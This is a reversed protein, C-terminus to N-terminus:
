EGAAYQGVLGTLVIVPPTPANAIADIRKWSNEVENSDILGIEFANSIIEDKIEDKFGSFKALPYQGFYLTQTVHLHIYMEIPVRMGHGNDTYIEVHDFAALDKHEGPEIPLKGENWRNFAADFAFGLEKGEADYCLCESYFAQPFRFPFPASMRIGFAIMASRHDCVAPVKVRVTWKHIDTDIPSYLDMQVKQALKKAAATFGAPCVLVGRQAGVDNVLGLFEEVGKVDVPHKYDKCDIVIRIEYQGVRQSVLVDIQRMVESNRGPLRVNHEIKADPALQQQIRAVLIELEKFAAM